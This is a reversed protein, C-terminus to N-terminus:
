ATGLLCYWVGNDDLKCHLFDGNNIYTDVGGNGNINPSSSFMIRTNNGDAGVIWIEQGTDGDTFNTVETPATNNTKFSTQGQINPTTGTPLDIPTGSGITMIKMPGLKSTDDSRVFEPPTVPNVEVQFRNSSTVREVWHSVTSAANTIGDATADIISRIPSLVDPTRLIGTPESNSMTKFGGIAVPTDFVFEQAITGRVDLNIDPYLSSANPGFKIGTNDQASANNGEISLQGFLNRLVGDCYLGICGNQSIFIKVDIFAGRYFSLNTDQYIGYVGTGIDNAFTMSISVNSLMTSAMSNSSSGSNIANIGRTCDRINLNVLSTAETWWLLNELQVGIKLNQLFCNSITQHNADTIKIGTGTKDNGGKIQWGDIVHMPRTPTPDLSIVFCPVDADLLIESGGGLLHITKTTPLQINGAVIRFPNASGGAIIIDGEEAAAIADKFAQTDDTIGDAKAGYDMVNILRTNVKEYEIGNNIYLGSFKNAGDHLGFLQWKNYNTVAPLTTGNSGDWILSTDKSIRVSDVSYVVSDDNRCAKLSYEGDGYFSVFGGCDGVVPQSIANQKEPDTWITAPTTTGADYVYVKPNEVTGDADIIQAWWAQAMGEAM